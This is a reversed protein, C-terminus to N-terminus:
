LQHFKELREAFIRKGRMRPLAPCIRFLCARFRRTAHRTALAAPTLTLVQRPFRQSRFQNDFDGIVMHLSASKAVSRLKASPAGVLLRSIARIGLEFYNRRLFQRCNKRGAALTAM